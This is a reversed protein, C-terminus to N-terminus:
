ARIVFQFHRSKVAAVAFDCCLSATQIENMVHCSYALMDALLNKESTLM